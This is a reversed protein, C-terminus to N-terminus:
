QSISLIDYYWCDRGTQPYTRGRTLNERMAQNLSMWGRDTQALADSVAGAASVRTWLATWGGVPRSHWLMVMAANMQSHYGYGLEAGVVATEQGLLPQDYCRPRRGYAHAPLLAYVVIASRWSDVPMNNLRAPEARWAQEVLLVAKADLRSSGSTQSLAADISGDARVLYRVGVVGEERAAMSRGPYDGPRGLAPITIRAPQIGQPSPPVPLLPLNTPQLPLRWNVMVPLTGQVAAGNQTAPQFSWRTKAIQIAAEDLYQSGSSRAVRADTVQGGASVTLNLDVNGEHNSFLAALPYDADNVTTPTLARPPVLPAQASSAAPLSLFLFAYAFMLFNRTRM